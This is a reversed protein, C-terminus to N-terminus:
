GKTKGIEVKAVAGKKGNEYGVRIMYEYYTAPKVAHDETKTEYGKVVKWLTFGKSEENRYIEWQKVNSMNHKWELDHHNTKKNFKATFAIIKGQECALAPAQLTVVPSPASKLGGITVSVMSYCYFKDAQLTSDTYLQSNFDTLLKLLESEKGKENRYLQIAALNEERGCAWELIVTKGTLKYGMIIPTSPPVLEPKQLIATESKDSQNYRKDLATVAYYIKSNLNRVDITDVWINKLVANDTLPILEEGLTQARYIRYGYIDSEKNPTWSLQVVGLSDVIGKLGIPASPPITDSPQVLVPFSLVPEGEKPVAAIVFYNSALLSDYTTARKDPSINKLVSVYPGKVNDSRQLEFEKLQENGREDFEWEVTLVGDKDPVARQIHPVYILKNKGEGKVVESPPGEESFANIGILRYYATSTNDKLSDTYFMREASKGNKSNMNVLPTDSLRKFTKGDLSKELFYANYVSNLIGYNWALLVSKDGFVAALEQPQPLTTVDNLSIYVSGMEIKLTKEPVASIVRYLYREGNKVTKDEFGWGALLAAPYCLDAAYMSVLYRQELEQALAILKSVGKSDEDSLKFNEGYLAQAIVAANNNSTALKEWNNLPQPKLPTTTIVVRDPQSLVEGNRVVTYREVTFGFTNSQKWAMPMTVAWRLQIFNEKVNARVGIGSLDQAMSTYESLILAIIMLSYYRTLRM